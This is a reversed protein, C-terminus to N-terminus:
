QQSKDVRKGKKDEPPHKKDWEESAQKIQEVSEFEVILEIQKMPIWEMRDKIWSGPLGEKNAKGVLFYDEGLKRVQVHELLIANQSTLNVYVLKGKFPLNETPAPAATSSKSLSSLVFAFLLSLCFVFAMAPAISRDHM